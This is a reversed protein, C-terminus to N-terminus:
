DQRWNTIETKVPPRWFKELTMLISLMLGATIFVPLLLRAIYDGLLIYFVEQLDAWIMM